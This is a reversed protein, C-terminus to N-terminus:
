ARRETLAATPPLPSVYGIVLMLVGVGLFSVIRELTGISSLDVFFLKAVVVALLTAGVLWVSRAIVAPARRTAYLMTLLALATWLITLGTQVVGSGLAGDIWMPTGAWHHLSRVLLANLWAFGVVASALALPRAALLGNRALKIVYLLALLHGLDVPNIFPVYPLPRMAGDALLDVVLCWLGLLLAWPLLLASRWAQPHASAPWRSLTLRQALWWATLTPLVIVALPTWAEHRAVAHSTLGYLQLGGQLLAYWGLLLHEVPTSRRWPMAADRRLRLQLWVGGALVAMLELWGWGNAFRRFLAETRWAGDAVQQASIFLAAAVLVRGPVGLEPWRLRAQVLELVGMAAVALLAARWAEDLAPADVLRWEIWLGTLAQLMGLLLMLWHLAQLSSPPVAQSADPWPLADREAFSRLLWASCLASGGLLLAGLLHANAWLALEHERPHSWFALAAALQLLLGLAAAWGRQQRLAIWLVGVGQVAWAAGTWRADLALPTVLVLFILGLALLGETLLRLAAGSQRWLWRGLLLYVGSLAASSLALGYPLHKVIGAQLGFAVIPLGFLLGGDVTRLRAEDGADILQRSYRVCIFLYLAFHLVLFFETSAFLAPEYTRWGWAAGIVFTFGFGVLNLLKWAKRSAIWAIGLNLVLYYSFLAVHSGHGTSALVPALFGGGFGLVALPLADQLLALLATLLSLGALLVFAFAAPVLGYLRLGAFIVLYLVGIGAGQLSLGYGRRAHRLRWGLVVLAMGGLAVGALRLEIPLLAHEAAFRLLFAVGFFLIVVGIRVITNGGRFWALVSEGISSTVRTSQEDVEIARAYASGPSAVFVPQPAPRPLPDELPVTDQADAEPTPEPPPEARPPAAAAPAAPRTGQWAKVQAELQDIRTHLRQLMLGVVIGIVALALGHARLGDSLVAAVLVAVVLSLWSM